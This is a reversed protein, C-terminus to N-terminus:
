AFLTLKDCVLRLPKELVTRAKQSQLFPIWTNKLLEARYQSTFYGMYSVFASTLLIDGCLTEQQKEYQVIAQSWRERESQLVNLDPKLMMTFICM